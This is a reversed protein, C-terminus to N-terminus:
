KQLLAALKPTIEAVAGDGKVSGEFSRGSARGDGNPIAFLPIMRPSYGAIALRDRDKDMDFELLTLKPFASDLAGSEAAAHFRRCPECWSAGVYVVLTRGESAEKARAVGILRAADAGDPAKLTRVHHEASGASTVAAPATAAKEPEKSGKSCAVSLLSAFLALPGLPRALSRPVPRAFSFMSVM